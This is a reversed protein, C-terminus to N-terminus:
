HELLPIYSDDSTCFHTNHSPPSLSSELSRLCAHIHHHNHSMLPPCPSLFPSSGHHASELLQLSWLWRWIDSPSNYELSITSAGCLGLPLDQVWLLFSCPLLGPLILMKWCDNQIVEARCSPFKWQEGGRCTSVRLDSRKAPLEFDIHNINHMKSIGMPGKSAPLIMQGCLAM